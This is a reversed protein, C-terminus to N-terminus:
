ESSSLVKWNLIGSTVFIIGSILVPLSYFAAVTANVFITGGLFLGAAVLLVGATFPYRFAFFLSIAPVVALVVPCFIYDWFRCHVCPVTSIFIYVGIFGLTFIYGIWKLINAISEMM